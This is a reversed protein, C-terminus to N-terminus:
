GNGKYGRIKRIRRADDIAKRGRELFELDTM